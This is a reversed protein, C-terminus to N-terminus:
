VLKNINTFNCEKLLDRENYIEERRAYNEVIKEKLFSKLVYKVAEFKVLEVKM